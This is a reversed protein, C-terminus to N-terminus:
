FMLHSVSPLPLSPSFSSHFTTRTQSTPKLSDCCSSPVLPLAALAAPIAAFGGVSVVVHAQHTRLAVRARGVQGLTRWLGSIRGALGRGMVQESPLALLEFGAEPVLRAELGRESGIFLVRDGRRVIIEALALAPTVHGGTGGGAIVWNRTM